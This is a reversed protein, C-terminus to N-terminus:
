VLRVQNAFPARGYIKTIMHGEYHASTRLQVTTFNILLSYHAQDQRGTRKRPTQALGSSAAKTVVAVKFQLVM